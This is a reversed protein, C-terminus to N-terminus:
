PTEPRDLGLLQRVDRDHVPSGNGTAIGAATCCGPCRKDHLRESMGPLVVSVGDRGCPLDAVVWRPQRDDPRCSGPIHAHLARYGDDPTILWLRTAEWEFDAIM